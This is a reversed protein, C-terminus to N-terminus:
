SKHMTVLYLSFPLVGWPINQRSLVLSAQILLNVTLIWALSCATCSFPRGLRRVQQTQVM